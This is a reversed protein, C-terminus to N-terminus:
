AMGYTVFLFVLVAVFLLIRWDKTWKLLFVSILVPAILNYHLYIFDLFPGFGIWNFFLHVQTGRILRFFTIITLVVSAVTPLRSFMSTFMMM